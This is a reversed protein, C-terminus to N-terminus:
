QGGMFSGSSSTGWADTSGTSTGLTTPAGIAQQYRTLSEWPMQQGQQYVSAPMMGLNAVGQSQNIAAQQRAMADGYNQYSMQNTIDGVQDMYGRAAIGEAIGQRNSGSQGAQVAQDTIGSLVNEQYNQTLPRIASQMAQQLYPNDMAAQPDLASQLAQQTSGITKQLEPSQAYQQMMQSARPDQNQYLNQAEGYLSSLYPTQEGWINQDSRSRSKSEDYAGSWSGM